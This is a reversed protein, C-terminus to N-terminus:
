TEEKSFKETRITGADNSNTKRERGASIPKTTRRAVVEVPPLKELAARRDGRLLSLLYRAAIRGSETLHQRVTTLGVHASVEIDDFGIISVDDPVSLGLSQAGAICGFAQLDAM